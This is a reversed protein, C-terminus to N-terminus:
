SEEGMGALKTIDAESWINAEVVAKALEPYREAVEPPTLVQTLKNHGEYDRKIFEDFVRYGGEIAYLTWKHWRWWNPGDQATANTADIVFVGDFKVPRLALTFGVKVVIPKM